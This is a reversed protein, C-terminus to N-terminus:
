KLEPLPLSFNGNWAGVLPHLISPHPLAPLRISDICANDLSEYFAKILELLISWNPYVVSSITLSPATKSSHEGSRVATVKKRLFLNIDTEKVPDTEEAIETWYRGGFEISSIKTSEAIIKSFKSSYFLDNSVEPTPIILVSLKPARPYIIEALEETGRLTKLSNFIDNCSQNTLISGIKLSGLDLVTLNPANPVKLVDLPRISPSIDIRHLSQSHFNSYDVTGAGGLGPVITLREITNLASNNDYESSMPPWEHGRWKLSHIKKFRSLHTAWTTREKELTLRISVDEAYLATSTVAQIYAEFLISATSFQIKKISPCTFYVIDMSGLYGPPREGIDFTLDYIYPFSAPHIFRLSQTFDDLNSNISLVRLKPAKLQSLLTSTPLGSSDPCFIALDKLCPMNLEGVLSIDIQRLNITVELKELLPFAGIHTRIIKDINVTEADVRREDSPIVISLDTMFLSRVVPKTYWGNFVYRDFLHTAPAIENSASITFGHLNKWTIGKLSPPPPTGLLGQLLNHLHRIESADWLMETFKLTLHKWRYIHPKLDALKSFPLYLKVQLPLENSMELSLAMKEEWDPQLGDIKIFTWLYPNNLVFTRWETCVQILTFPGDDHIAIFHSFIEHVVDNNLERFM